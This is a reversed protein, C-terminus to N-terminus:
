QALAPKGFAQRATNLIGLNLKDLDERKKQADMKAAYTARVRKHFERLDGAIPKLKSLRAEEEKSLPPADDSRSADVKRQSLDTFEEYFKEVSQPQTPAGVALAGIFPYDVARMAPAPHDTKPKLSDVVRVATRGATSTFGFIIHDLKNPSFSFDSPKAFHGVPTDKLKRGLAALGATVSKSFETTGSKARLHPSLFELAKPDIPQGTFTSQNRWAEALPLVGTPAVGPMTASWITGGFKEMKSWDQKSIAAPIREGLGSAFVAGWLFPKPIPIFKVGYERLWPAFYRTPLLWMSDKVYWPQEEYDPDDKNLMMLLMSFMTMASGRALTRMFQKPNRPDMLRFFMNTGQVQANWFANVMNVLKGRSGVRGFDITVNRSALAAEELSDGKKLGKSFEALRTAQEMKEGTAAMPRLLVLGLAQLPHKAYYSAGNTALLNRLTEQLHQRDVSIMAAHEGGSRRWLHFTEARDSVFKPAQKGRKKYAQEIEPALAITLGRLTDVGPLFGYKSQMWANFADRLPNRILFSPSYQVAGKRLLSAAKALYTSIFTASDKDSVMMAEYLEPAVQYYQREGNEVVSVVYNGGTQNASPRWITAVAELDADTLDAKADELAKKIEELTFHQPALKRPVWEMLRGAGSTLDAQKAFQAIVNNRDAASIMAYTNKIIGELPDAFDRQSEGIRKVPSSVDALRQSAAKGGGTTRFEESVRYFPIYNRNLEKMRNYQAMSLMGADRYYRLVADQYEDLEAAARRLIKAREPEATMEDIADQYVSLPHGSNKGRNWLEIGRRAVMFVRLDDLGEDYNDDVNIDNLIRRTAAGLSKGNRAVPELIAKLSKGVTKKTRYDFTAEELFEQAKGWWGPLLQALKGAHARADLDSKGSIRLMEVVGDMIPQRAWVYNQYFEDWSKFYWLPRNKVISFKYYWPQQPTGKDISGLVQARAPQSYWKEIRERGLFLGAKLEPHADLMGEFHKFFTPAKQEAQKPDTLWLRVFEAFGEHLRAKKPQYDMPKLEAAFRALPKNNLGNNAMGWFYKHLHHGLEHAFTRLDNASKLRVVSPLVKYIGLARQRFRGVRVPLKNEFLNAIDAIIEGRRAIGKQQKSPPAPSSAQETQAPKRLRFPGRPAFSATGGDEGGPAYSATGDGDEEEILPYRELVADLVREAQEGSGPLYYYHDYAIKESQVGVGRLFDGARVDASFRIRVVYNRGIRDRVLRLGGGLRIVENDQLVGQIVDATPRITAEGSVAREIRNAERPSVVVGVVSPQGDPYAMRIDMRRGSTPNLHNWIPLVAGGIMHIDETRQPKAAAIAAEWQEFRGEAHIKRYAERADAKEDSVRDKDKRLEELRKEDNALWREADARRQPNQDFYYKMSENPNALQEKRQKLEERLRRIQEELSTEEAVKDDWLKKEPAGIAIYAGGAIDADTVMEPMEREDHHEPRFVRYLRHIAGSRPDAVTTDTRQLAVVLGTGVEKAVVAGQDLKHKLKDLSFPKNKKTVRIQYRITKAGSKEDRAIVKQSVMETSEGRIEQVGTDLTGNAIAQAVTAEFTRVFYDFVENQEKTSLNLVRNLLRTVNRMDARKIDSMVGTDPDVKVMGMKVLVDAPANHQFEATGSLIGRYFQEAAEQGQQTEFNYKALLSAGASGRQGKTLAGLADLRRAITSSFRREGGINTSVIVYEPAQKQNSRHTRGFSQMQDDASWSLEMVIHLRPRQNKAKLDAHLSIGTGASKSIVAIKKKGSQFQDMEYANVDKKAVGEPARNIRTPKGTKPDFGPEEKRGTLEAVRSRGFANVIAQLPSDPLTLNETVEKMLADRRAVAEPNEVPKGDRIVPRSRVNGSDDTYEEFQQVPYYREIYSTLIERPSFDIDYDEDAAAKDLEREAQAEGTGILSIVVAQDNDMAKETMELITPLKFATLLTRFFRQHDGWFRSMARARAQANSGAGNSVLQEEVAEMIAQWAKAATDYAKLQEETLDHHKESYEVGRYSISRSAYKGFAKLERAVLELAAVGGRGIETMFANLDNFVTGTGWLGLRALPAMHRVESAFTASAYVVRAKPLLEQLEIAARGSKSGEAAGGPVANKGKHVEDLIIVLDEGGWEQIQQLRTKGNNGAAGSRLTDFTMFLTGAKIPIKDNPKWDNISRIEGVQSTAVQGTEPDVTLAGIGEFDRIADKHLGAIASVWIAKKRGRRFNDWIIAALQQGKGVGTGDGLLYGLRNGDGDLQEHQMGARAVTEFQAASLPKPATTFASNPLNPVYTITPSDVSAMVRTEVLDAPHKPGAISPQYPVFNSGEEEVDVEKRDVGEINTMGEEPEEPTTPPPAPPEDQPETLKKTVLRRQDEVYDHADAFLENMYDRIGEGFESIMATRWEAAKRGRLLMASAEVIDPWMERVEADTLEGPDFGLVGPAYSANKKRLKDRLRKLADEGRQKLEADLAADIEEDTPPRNPRPKPAAKKTPALQEAPAAGSDGGSGNDQAPQQQGSGQPQGGANGGGAEGPVGESPRVPPQVGEPTGVAPGSRSGGGTGEADAGDGSGRIGTDPQLGSGVSAPRGPEGGLSVSKRDEAIPRIADWAEEVTKFDGQIPAADSPAVKDVILLRNGFTTGYKAYEKGDIGVNARVQGNKKLYAWLNRASPATMTTGEGLIAVLRGGPALRQFAQIVHAHGFKNKNSKVRGGTSSFPPNMVIATPKETVGKAELTGNLFEADADTINEYGQMRLMERRHPDIENVMVKRVMGRLMAVLSGTGASPEMVVDDSQPGLAKNALWALQPPTSFQQLLEQGASRVKQTPLQAILNRLTAMAWSADRSPDDSSELLISGLPRGTTKEPSSLEENVATELVDYADKMQFTGGARTGGTVEEVLKEFKPNDFKEGRRLSERVRDALRRWVSRQEPQTEQETLLGEEQQGEAQQPRQGEADTEEDPQVEQEPFNGEQDPTSPQVNTPPVSPTSPTEVNQLSESEPAPPQIVEESEPTSIQPPPPLEIPPPIVPPQTATPPPQQEQQAIPFDVPQEEAAVPRTEIGALADARNESLRARRNEALRRFYNERPGHIQVSAALEASESAPSTSEETGGIMAGGTAGGLLGGLAEVDAGEALNLNPDFKEKLVSRGTVGQAVEQFPESVAGTVARIKGSKILPNFLGALNTLATIPIDRQLAATFAEAAQEDTAGYKQKAQDYIEAANVLSEMGSSGLTARVAAGFSTPAGFLAVSPGLFAMMSGTSQGVQHAMYQPDLLLTPDQWWSDSAYSIKPTDPNKHPWGMNRMAFEQTGRGAEALVDGARSVARMQGGWLNRRAADDLQEGGVEMATGVGRITQNLGQNGASLVTDAIDIVSPRPYDAPPASVPGQVPDMSTELFAPGKTDYQIDAGTVTAAGPMGLDIGTRPDANVAQGTAADFTGPIPKERKFFPTAKRPKAVEPTPAMPSVTTLRDLESAAQGPGAVFGIIESDSYGERRAGEVDFDQRLYDLIEADSYGASRAGRVDFRLQTATAM